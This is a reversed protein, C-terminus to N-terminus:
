YNFQGCTIVNLIVGSVVLLTARLVKMFTHLGVRMNWRLTPPSELNALTLSFFIVFAFKHMLSSAEAELYFM